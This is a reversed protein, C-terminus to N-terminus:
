TDVFPFCMSSIEMFYMHIYFHFFAKPCQVSPNM